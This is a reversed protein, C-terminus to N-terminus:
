EQVIGRSVYGQRYNRMPMTVYVLGQDSVLSVEDTAKNFKVLLQADASKPLLISRTVSMLNCYDDGCAYIYADILPLGSGVLHFVGLLYSKRDLNVRQTVHPLKDQNKELWVELKEEASSMSPFFLFSEARVQPTLTLLFVFPLIIRHM